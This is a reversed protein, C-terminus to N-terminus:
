AFACIVGGVLMASITWYGANILIYKWSKREFLANTGLMPLALFFGTLLGHFAGHKFTRFENGYKSLFDAFYLNAESGPTDVGSNALAGFAGMQHVVIPLIGVAFFISFLTAVGYIKAMNAGEIKDMTMGSEVMWAKGFLPGYWLAGVAMPIFGAGLVVLFNLNLLEM